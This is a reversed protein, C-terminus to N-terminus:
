GTMLEYFGSADSKGALKACRTASEQPDAHNFKSDLLEILADLFRSGDLAVTDMIYQVNSGDLFFVEGTELSSGLYDADLAAFIIVKGHGPLDIQWPSKEFRIFSIEVRSVDYKDILELLPDISDIGLHDARPPCEYASKLEDWMTRPWGDSELQEDTPKRQKLEVVFQHANM